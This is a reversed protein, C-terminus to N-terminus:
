EILPLVESPSIPAVVRARMWAREKPEVCQRIAADEEDGHGSRGLYDFLAACEERFTEIEPYNAFENRDYALKKAAIRAHMDANFLESQGTGKPDFYQARCEDCYRDVLAEPVRASAPGALAFGIAGFAALATLFRRM